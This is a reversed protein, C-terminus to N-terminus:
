LQIIFHVNFGHDVCWEYKKRDNIYVPQYQIRPAKFEVFLLNLMEVSALALITHTQYMHPFRHPDGYKKMMILNNSGFSGYFIMEKCRRTVKLSLNTKNIIWDIVNNKHYIAAFYCIKSYSLEPDNTKWYEILEINSGRVADAVVEESSRLKKTFLEKFLSLYGYFAATKILDKRTFTTDLKVHKNFDRSVLRCAVLSVLDLWVSSLMYRKLDNPVLHWM